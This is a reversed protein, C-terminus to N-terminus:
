NNSPSEELGKVYGQNFIKKLLRYMKYDIRSWGDGNYSPYIANCKDDQPIGSRFLEGTNTNLFYKEYM